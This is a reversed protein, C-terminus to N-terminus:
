ADPDGRMLLMYEDTSLGDPDKAVGRWREFRDADVGGAKSVVLRGYRGPTLRVTEGPVLQFRAVAQSPVVLSGDPGVVVTFTEAVPQDM